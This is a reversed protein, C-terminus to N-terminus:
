LYLLQLIRAWKANLWIWNSFSIKLKLCFWTSRRATLPKLWPVINSPEELVMKVYPLWQCSGRQLISIFLSWTTSKLPLNRCPSPLTALVQLRPPLRLWTQITPDEMTRSFCLTTWNKKGGMGQRKRRKKRLRRRRKTSKKSILTKRTTARRAKRRRM